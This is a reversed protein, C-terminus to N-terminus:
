FASTAIEGSGGAEGVLTSSSSAVPSASKIPSSDDLGPLGLSSGVLDLLSNLQMVSVFMVRHNRLNSGVTIVEHSFRLLRPEYTVKQGLKQWLFPLQSFAEHLHARFNARLDKSLM